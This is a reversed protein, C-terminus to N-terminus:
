RDRERAALMHELYHISTGGDIFHTDRMLERHLPVNTQIGEVVTESLAIKMRAIAQARTDGYVILKAIMSDYHPPVVYGSYAHSDVRVGPGGPAHWTLIKGPSPTFKYPDEANIRCEIAHGKFVIDKQKLRLRQGSAVRIQEQVIDIGTILETVPHEVQVRTNMEIFYFENNEFLFEITGAGRYGIRRCADACRDGIKERLRTSLKPAPAEELIKQHRRQMSCDREGLHVVNGFHDALIQIEIHRPNELFKEMYVEPNNFAAAAEARTTQVANILAAETHVVRMGRGGGGGAAKIIVPYGVSRAIKVIEKPDEPLAGESGPVCPVGAAIMARKAAVKDGMMRIVDATPGIFKFGSREVREAFDANESLFGYGPHIAEADTVEAAAIIAPVNLYSQRSPPPGICVSEDALKVYKADTDAESHVVVTKIGLERCARQIRLAIEGRNAILVKEFM